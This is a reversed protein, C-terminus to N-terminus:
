HYCEITPVIPKDIASDFSQTRRAPDHRCPPCLILYMYLRLVFLVNLLRAMYGRVIPFITPSLANQLDVHFCYNCFYLCQLPLVPYCAILLCDVFVNAVNTTM